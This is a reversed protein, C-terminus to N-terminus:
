VRLTHMCISSKLKNKEKKKQKTKNTKKVVRKNM